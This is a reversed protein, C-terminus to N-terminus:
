NELLTKKPRKCQRNATIKQVLTTPNFTIKSLLLTLFYIQVTSMNKNALIYVPSM